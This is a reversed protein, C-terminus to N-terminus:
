FRISFNVGAGGPTVVPTVRVRATDEEESHRRHNARYFTKGIAFGAAAGALVDTVHHRGEEVRSWAVYGALGYLGVATGIRAWPRGEFRRALVSDTYAMWTFANSAADSYFSDRADSDPRKRQVINKVLGSTAWNFKHAEVLGMVDDVYRGYSRGNAAILGGLAVGRLISSKHEILYSRQADGGDLSDPLSPELPERSTGVQKEYLYDAEEVLFVTLFHYGHKKMFRSFSGALGAPTEEAQPAAAPDMWAGEQALQISRAAELLTSAGAPPGGALAGAICPIIAKLVVRM